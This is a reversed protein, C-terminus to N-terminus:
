FSSSLSHDSREKPKPPRISFRRDSPSNSLACMIWLTCQIQPIQAIQPHVFAVVHSSRNDRQPAGRKRDM